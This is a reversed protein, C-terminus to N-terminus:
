EDQFAGLAIVQEHCEGKLLALRFPAVPCAFRPARIRYVAGFEVTELSPDGDRYIHTSM